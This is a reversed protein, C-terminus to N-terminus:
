PPIMLWKSLSCYSGPWTHRPAQDERAAGGSPLGEWPCGRRLAVRAPGTGDQPQQRAKEQCYEQQHRLPATNTGLSDAQLARSVGWGQAPRPNSHDGTVMQVKARDPQASPPAPLQGSDRAQASGNCSATLSQGAPLQARRRPGPAPKAPCLSFPHRDPPRLWSPLKTLGARRAWAKRRGRLLTCLSASPNAGYSAQGWSLCM